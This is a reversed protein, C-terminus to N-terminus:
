REYTPVVEWEEGADLYEDDPWYPDLDYPSEEYADGQEYEPEEEAEVVFVTSELLDSAVEWLLDDRDNAPDFGVEKLEQFLERAEDRDLGFIEQADAYFDRFSMEAAETIGLSGRCDSHLAVDSDHRYGVMDHFLAVM